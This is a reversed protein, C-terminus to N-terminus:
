RRRQVQLRKLHLHMREDLAAMLAEEEELIPGQEIGQPANDSFATAFAFTCTGMIFTSLVFLTLRSTTPRLLTANQPIRSFATHSKM